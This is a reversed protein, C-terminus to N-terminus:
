QAVLVAQYRVKGKNLRKLIKEISDAGTHKYLELQPKIGHRAAFTLMDNYKHRSAGLSSYLYYGHWFCPGALLSIPAQTPALLSVISSNRALVEKALFRPM